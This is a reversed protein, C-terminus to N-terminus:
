RIEDQVCTAYGCHGVTTKASIHAPRDPGTRWEARAGSEFLLYRGDPSPTLAALRRRTYRSGFVCGMERKTRTNWITLTPKQKDAFFYLCEDDSTFGCDLGDVHAHLTAVHIGTACEVVHIRNRQKCGEVMVLYNGRPSFILDALERARVQNTTTIELHDSRITFSANRLAVQGLLLTMAGDRVTKEGACATPQRKRRLSGACGHGLLDAFAAKDIEIALKGGLQKKINELAARPFSTQLANTSIRTNLLDRIRLVDLSPGVTLDHQLDKAHIAQKWERGSALDRSLSAAAISRQVTDVTKPIPQPALAIMLRDPDPIPYLDHLFQGTKRARVQAWTQTFRQGRDDHGRPYRGEISDCDGPRRRVIDRDRRDAASSAVLHLHFRRCRPLRGIRGLAAGFAIRAIWIRRV